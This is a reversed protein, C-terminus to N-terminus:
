DMRGSSGSEFVGDFLRQHLLLNVNENVGANQEPSSAARPWCRGAGLRSATSTDSNKPGVDVNAGSKRRRWDASRRRREVNRIAADGRSYPAEASEESAEGGGEGDFFFNWENETNRRKVWLDSLGVASPKPTENRTPKPKQRM